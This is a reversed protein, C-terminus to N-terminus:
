LRRNSTAAAVKMDVAAATHNVVVVARLLPAHPAPIRPLRTLHPALRVQGLERRNRQALVFEVQMLPQQAAVCRVVAVVPVFLLDQGAAPLEAAARLVAATQWPVAAAAIAEAASKPSATIRGLRTWLGLRGM